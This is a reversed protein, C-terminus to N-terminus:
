PQDLFRQEYHGRALPRYGDVYASIPLETAELFRGFRQPELDGTSFRSLTPLVWHYLQEYDQLTSQLQSLSHEFARLRPGPSQSVDNGLPLHLEGPTGLAPDNFELSGWLIRHETAYIPKQGQELARKVSPLILLAQEAVASGVHGTMEMQTLLTQPSPDRERLTESLQSLNVTGPYNRVGIRLLRQCLDAVDAAHVFVEEFELKGGFFLQMGSEGNVVVNAREITARGHREAISRRAHDLEHRLLFTDPAVGHAAQPRLLIAHRPLRSVLWRMDASFHEIANRDEAPGYAGYAGRHILFLLPAITLKLGELEADWARALQNLGANGEPLIRISPMGKYTVVEYHVQQAELTARVDRLSVEVRQRLESEPIGFRARPHTPTETFHDVLLSRM